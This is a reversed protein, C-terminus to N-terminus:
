GDTKDQLKMETHQLSVSAQTADEMDKVLQEIILPYLQPSFEVKKGSVKRLMGRNLLMGVILKRWSDDYEEALEEQNHELRTELQGGTNIKWDPFEQLGLFALRKEYDSLTQPPVAELRYSLILTFLDVMIALFLALPSLMNVIDLSPKVEIYQEYPELSEQPIAVQGTNSMLSNSLNGIMQYGAKIAQYNEKVSLDTLGQQALLLSLEKIQKDLEDFGTKLDILMLKERETVENFHEWYGGKGLIGKMRKPMDPHTGLYAQDTDYRASTVRQKQTEILISKQTLVTNLYRDVTKKLTSYKVEQLATSESIEYFKFYSFFISVALAVILYLLTSSFRLMSARWHMKSLEVTAMVLIAQVAVTIIMAIWDTIFLKMGHYTTYGSACSLLLILPIKSITLLRVFTDQLQYILNQFSHMM